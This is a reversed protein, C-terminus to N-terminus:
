VILVGHKQAEPEMWFSDREIRRFLDPPLITERPVAKVEPRVRHLGPLGLRLDYEGVAPVALSVNRFDHQYYPQGIFDYVARLAQEPAATLTEYRLLMLMDRNAGYFAERVANFAFGVLGANAAVVEYRMYVTHTTDFKFIRSSQLPNAQILRELSDIIWPVHRVCVIIRSAPFLERLAPTKSCWLRNTDFVLQDPHERYYYADFVQRLVSARKGDDIDVAAENDECMTRMLAVFLSGVPSTISAQFRPNQRLLAALLTSGSRPLGSIFHLGNDM